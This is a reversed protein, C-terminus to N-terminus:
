FKLNFLIKFLLIITITIGVRHGFFLLIHIVMPVYLAKLLPGDVIALTIVIVMSVHAMISVHTVTANELAAPRYEQFIINFM